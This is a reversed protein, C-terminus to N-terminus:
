YGGIGAVARDLAAEVRRRHPGEELRAAAWLFPRPSMKWTGFELWLPLNLPRSNPRVYVLYGYGSTYKRQGSFAPGARRGMGVDGLEFIINAATVGEGSTQRSLRAYAGDAIAQATERAAENLHQDVLEGVGGIRKLAALVHDAHLEFTVQDPM